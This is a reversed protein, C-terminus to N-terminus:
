SGQIAITEGKAPTYNTTKGNVRVVCPNGLLSKIKSKTLKGDKWEINVEFGGRARLGTVSGNKWSPPLAPLLSIEGAHSQLLCEAVGATYGYNADSQNSGTNHLNNGIGGRPSRSLFFNKITSDVREGNELRAWDCIDWASTWSTRAQRPELWKKIAAAIEPNGRLTISNGPYFGFNASMNHGESGRKWEEIWVQLLGDKGIQYPPIKQLAEALKAGFVQDINLIKEAEIIHPFLDRIIGINMTTTSSLFAEKAKDSTFYGQEPSMSFPIVLWKHKPEITMIDMLFQASGKMVPYYEKLFEVDGTFLYHEWIHQCLWSGGVPWMGYRAADVPATGRWLDTNHHVVWGGANYYTKATKSGSESLDKILNFLPIHCESLNTVEVPWYNMETNINITYKSGWNPLMSEDWRGQLNAPESGPRSSSVLIYRGFQFLKGLLDPDPLGKKLNVVREDTPMQNMMPDGIKLHVRGMLGVFDKLHIDKLTNFDKGNVGAMIKECTAAPDGSIDTYNVFSTAMTLIFTVSNAKKVVLSSDTSELTGKEPIAVLSTHFKLGTGEVKAILWNVTKPLYKWTGDMTLKGNKATTKELFPSKLKAELSVREPKNASVKMVMVRDPYSMFVERTMKVNGETYSVRVVGTEMDLERRYDKISDGTMNFNLLLDGIPQYAQQAGPKGYFHEDAMKEAEQFKGTFVLDRIKAFYKNADHDDYDHPRGSWFTSENLAIRENHVKGFVNGGMYGNGIFLGDLWVQDAPKNYWVVMDRKEPSKQDSSSCSTQLGTNVMLAIFLANMFTTTKKM